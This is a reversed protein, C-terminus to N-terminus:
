SNSCSSCSFFCFFDTAALCGIAPGELFPGYMPRLVRGLTSLVNGLPDFQWEASRGHRTDPNRWGVWKGGQPRYGELCAATFSPALLRPAIKM